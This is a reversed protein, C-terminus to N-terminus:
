EASASTRPEPRHEPATKEARGRIRHREWIASGAIAAGILAGLSLGRLFIAQTHAAEDPKDWPWSLQELRSRRSM